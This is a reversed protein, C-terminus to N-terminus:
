ALSMISSFLFVWLVQPYSHPFLRPSFELHGGRCQKKREPCNTVMAFYLMYIMIKRNLKVCARTRASIPKASDDCRFFNHMVAFGDLGPGTF